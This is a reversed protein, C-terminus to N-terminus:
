RVTLTTGTESAFPVQIRNMSVINRGNVRYSVEALKANRWKEDAPNTSTIFVITGKTKITKGLLTLEDYFCGEDLVIGLRDKIKNENGDM